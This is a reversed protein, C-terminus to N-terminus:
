IKIINSKSDKTEKNVGLGRSLPSENVPPKNIQRRRRAMDLIEDIQYSLRQAKKKLEGIGAYKSKIKKIELPTLAKSNILDELLKTQSNHQPM